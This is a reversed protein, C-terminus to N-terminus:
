RQDRASFVVNLFFVKERLYERTSTESPKIQTERDAASQHLFQFVRFSEEFWGAEYLFEGLKDLFEFDAITQYKQSLYFEAILSDFRLYPNAGSVGCKAANMHHNFLEQFVGHLDVRYRSQLLRTLVNQKM